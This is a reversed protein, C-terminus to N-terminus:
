RKKDSQKKTSSLERQSRKLMLVWGYAGGFINVAVQLAALVKLAGDLSEMAVTCAYAEAGAGMPFTALPTLYRLVGAIRGGFIYYPYRCVETLVWAFLAVRCAVHTGTLPFIVAMVFCRIYHIAIGLGLNGKLSGVAIRGVELCCLFELLYVSPAIYAASWVDVSDQRCVICLRAGLALWGVLAFVNLATWM